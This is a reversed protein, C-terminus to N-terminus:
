SRPPTAGSMDIDPDYLDGTVAKQLAGPTLTLLYWSGEAVYDTNKVGLVTVVATPDADRIHYLSAPSPPAPARVDIPSALIAADAWEKPIVEFLIDYTNSTPNLDAKSLFGYYQNSPSIPNTTGQGGANSFLGTWNTDPGTGPGKIPASM